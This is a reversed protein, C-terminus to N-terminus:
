ADYEHKEIYANVETWTLDGAVYDHRVGTPASPDAIVEYVSYHQVWVEAGNRDLGLLTKDPYNLSTFAHDKPPKEDTPSM